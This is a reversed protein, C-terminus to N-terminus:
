CAKTPMLDRRWLDVVVLDLDFGLKSMSRRLRCTGLREECVSDGVGCCNGHWAPGCGRGQKRRGAVAYCSEHGEGLEQGHQAEASTNATPMTGSPSCM